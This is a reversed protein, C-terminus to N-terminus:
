SLWNLTVTVTVTTTCSTINNPVGLAQVTGTSARLRGGPPTEQGLCLAGATAQAATEQAANGWVGMYCVFFAPPMAHRAQLPLMAPLAHCSCVTCGQQCDDASAATTFPREGVTKCVAVHDYSRWKTASHWPHGITCYLATYYLATYYLVTYYLVTYYLVTCYLVTYYLATCRLVFARM